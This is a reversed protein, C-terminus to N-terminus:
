NASRVGNDRSYRGLGYLTLRDGPAERKITLGGNFNIIESNGSQGNLGLDLRIKWKARQAIIEPDEQGTPWSSTVQKLEVPKNGVVEGQVSQTGAAADYQLKAVARDGTELQVNLPENTSIGKIKAADITLDGAFETKITVKGGAIRTVTGVIKSGDALHVEDAFVALPSALLLACILALRLM